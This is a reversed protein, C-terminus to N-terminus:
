CYSNFLMGSYASAAYPSIFNHGPNKYAVVVKNVYNMPDLSVQNSKQLLMSSFDKIYGFTEKVDESQFAAERMLTNDIEMTGDDAINMGTSELSTDYISAIGKMERVLTGSKSQSDLYNSVARIFDNYGQVLHTVNETLSDVDTKLGVQISIDEPSIGKLEVEFQKGVTFHNSSTSRPEGNLLFTANSSKRSIYDLGFYEVAGARKSTHDDSVTFINDGNSSSGTAVSELILSTKDEAEKISAKLGIDANNVLRMLREQVDKNTEGENIAFHFEYNMDNIAIDFSYTDVPLSVKDNALFLGMNEQTTALSQVELTFDPINLDPSQEGIYTATAIQSNSTYASKKNLLGDEELGGLHAITNHLARAQEKLDVAYRQTDKNTTPLYWPAEKNQQVISNYVGRLESKKHTDYRTVSKPAYSTLYNNYVTNLVASM